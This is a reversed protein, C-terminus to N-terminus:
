ADCIQGLMTHPKLLDFERLDLPTVVNHLTTAFPYANWNGSITV